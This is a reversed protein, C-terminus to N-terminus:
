VPSMEEVGAGLALSTPSCCAPLPGLKHWSLHELSLLKKYVCFNGALKAKLAPAKLLLPFGGGGKGTPVARLSCGQAIGHALSMPQQM